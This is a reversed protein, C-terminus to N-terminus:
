QPVARLEAPALARIADDVTRFVFGDGLEKMVGFQSLAHYARVSELRAIAFVIGADHCKRIGERLVQASHALRDEAVTTLLHRVDRAIDRHQDAFFADAEVGLSLTLGLPGDLTEDRSEGVAAVTRAVDRAEEHPLAEVVEDHSDEERAAPEVGRM